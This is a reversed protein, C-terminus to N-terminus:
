RLRSYNSQIVALPCQPRCPRPRRTRRDRCSQQRDPTQVLALFTRRPNGRRWSCSGPHRRPRFLWRRSAGVVFGTEGHFRRLGGRSCRLDLRRCRSLGGHGGIRDQGLRLHRDGRFQFRRPGGFEAFHFPGHSGIRKPLGEVGNAAADFAFFRRALIGAVHRKQIEHLIILMRRRHSVWTPPLSRRHCYRCSAKFLRACRTGPTCPTLHFKGEM